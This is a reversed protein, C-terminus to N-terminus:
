DNEGVVCRSFKHSKSSSRWWQTRKAFQAPTESAKTQSPTQALIKSNCTTLLMAALAAKTLPLVAKNNLSVM